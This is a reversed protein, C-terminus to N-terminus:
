FILNIKKVFELAAPCLGYDEENSTKLILEGRHIKKLFGGLLSTSSVGDCDRDGFLLIKKETQVFEKLLELAPELDPLLFPSPLERLGHYLLHEPHSKERLHTEYFRHQLPSLYQRFGSSPHLEQLGPGHSFPSLKPM